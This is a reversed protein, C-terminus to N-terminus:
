GNCYKSSLLLPSQEQSTTGTVHYHQTHQMHALHYPCVSLLRCRSFKRQLSRTCCLGAAKYLPFPVVTTTRISCSCCCVTKILNELKSGAHRGPGPLVQCCHREFDFDIRPVDPIKAWELETRLTYFCTNFEEWDFEDAGVVRLRFVNSQSSRLKYAAKIVMQCVGLACGGPGSGVSLIIISDSSGVIRCIEGWAPEQGAVCALTRCRTKLLRRTYEKRFGAHGYHRKGWTHFVGGVRRFERYLREGSASCPVQEGVSRLVSDIMSIENVNM